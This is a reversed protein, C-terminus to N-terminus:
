LRDDVDRGAEVLHQYLTIQNNRNLLVHFKVILQQKIAHVFSPELLKIWRVVRLM